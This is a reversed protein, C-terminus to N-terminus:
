TRTKRTECNPNPNLGVKIKTKTYPIKNVKNEHGHCTGTLNKLVVYVDLLAM